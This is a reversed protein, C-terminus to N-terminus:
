CDGQYTDDTRCLREHDKQMAYNFALLLAVALIVWGLVRGVDRM